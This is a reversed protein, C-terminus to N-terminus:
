TSSQGLFTPTQSPTPIERSKHRTTVDSTCLMGNATDASLQWVVLWDDIVRPPTSLGFPLAFFESIQGKYM